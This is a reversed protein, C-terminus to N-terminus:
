LGFSFLFWAYHYAPWYGSKKADRRAWEVVLLPIGIATCVDTIGNRASPSLAALCAYDAVALGALLFIGGLPTFVDRARM